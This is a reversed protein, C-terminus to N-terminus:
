RRPSLKFVNIFIYWVLNNSKINILDNFQTLMYRNSVVPIQYGTHAEIEFSFMKIHRINILLKMKLESFRLWINSFNSAWTNHWM